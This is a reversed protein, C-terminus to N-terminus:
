IKARAERTMSDSSEKSDFFSPSLSSFSKWNSSKVKSGEEKLFDYFTVLQFYQLWFEKSQEELVCDIPM